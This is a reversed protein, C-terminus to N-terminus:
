GVPENLPRKMHTIQNWDEALDLVATFHHQNQCKVEDQKHKSASACAEHRRNCWLVFAIYSRDSTPIPGFGFQQWIFKLGGDLPQQISGLILRESHCSAFNNPM